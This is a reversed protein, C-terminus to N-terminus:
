KEVRYVVMYIPPNCRFNDFILLFFEKKKEM